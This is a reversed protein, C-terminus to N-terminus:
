LAAIVLLSSFYVVTYIKGHGVFPEVVTRGGLWSLVVFGHFLVWLTAKLLLLGHPSRSPVASLFYLSLVSLALAVVGGLKSPISRLIEYAFM